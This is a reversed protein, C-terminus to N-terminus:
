WSMDMDLIPANQERLPKNRGGCWSFFGGSAATKPASFCQEPQDDGEDGDRTPPKPPTIQQQLVSDSTGEAADGPGPSGQEQSEPATTKGTNGGASVAPVSSAGAAAPAGDAGAGISAGDADAAPADDAGAAPADDVSSRKSSDGVIEATTDAGTGAGTSVPASDTEAPAALKAIARNIANMWQDRETIDKCLVRWKGKVVEGDKQRQFYIKFVQEAHKKAKTANGKVDRLNVEYARGSSNFYCLKDASLQFERIKWIGLGHGPTKLNGKKIVPSRNDSADGM